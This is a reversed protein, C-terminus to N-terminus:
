RVVIMQRTGVFQRRDVRVFYAGPAHGAVDVELEVPVGPVAERSALLSIRRGLVDFLAAQIRQPAGVTVEVHATSAAPNPYADLRVSDARAPGPAADLALFDDNALIVVEDEVDSWAAIDLAGDGDLDTAFPHTQNSVDELSTPLPNDDGTRQVFEPASPTGINEFYFTDSGDFRQNRAILDLDGDGDLDGAAPSPDSAGTYEAFTNSGDTRPEYVAHAPTGVNEWYLFEFEWSDYESIVDLDGDGDFDAFAVRGQLLQPSRLPHQRRPVETFSAAPQAVAARTGWGNTASPPLVEPIPAIQILVLPVIM